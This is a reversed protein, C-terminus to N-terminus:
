ASICAKEEEEVEEQHYHCICLQLHTFLISFLLGSEEKLQMATFGPPAGNFQAPHVQTISLQVSDSLHYSSTIIHTKLLAYINQQRFSEPLEQLDQTAYDTATCWYM